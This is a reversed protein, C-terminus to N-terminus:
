FSVITTCSCPRNALNSTATPNFNPSIFKLYFAFCRLLYADCFDGHIVNLVQCKVIKLMKEWEPRPVILLGCRNKHQQYGYNPVDFSPSQDFWVELLKEPGEFGCFTHTTPPNPPLLSNKVHTFIGPPLFITSCTRWSATM